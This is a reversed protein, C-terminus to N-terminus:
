LRRFEKFIEKEKEARWLVAKEFSEPDSKSFCKAYCEGEYYLRCHWDNKRSSIGTYGTTNHSAVKRNANNESATAWRLNTLNNNLTNGDIHDVYDKNNKNPIFTEALVRHLLYTKNGVVFDLYANNKFMHKSLKIYSKSSLKYVEGEKSICHTELGSILYFGELIENAFTTSLLVKVSKRKGYLFVIYKNAYWSSTLMFDKTKNYVEGNKNIQYDEYNPIDYFIDM